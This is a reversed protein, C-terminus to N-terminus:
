IGDKVMRNKANEGGNDEIIKCLEIEDGADFPKEFDDENKSRYVRLKFQYPGEEKRMVDIHFYPDREYYRAYNSLPDVPKPLSKDERRM